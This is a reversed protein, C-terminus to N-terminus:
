DSIQEACGDCYIHGLDSGDIKGGTIPRPQDYHGCDILWAQKGCVECTMLEAPTGCDPCKGGDKEYEAMRDSEKCASDWANQEREKEIKKRIEEEKMEKEEAM